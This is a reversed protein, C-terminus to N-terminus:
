QEKYSSVRKYVGFVIHRYVGFEDDLLRFIDRNWVYDRGILEIPEWKMERKSKKRGKM